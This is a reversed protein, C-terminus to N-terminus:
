CKNSKMSAKSDVQDAYDYEFSVFTELLGGVIRCIQELFM